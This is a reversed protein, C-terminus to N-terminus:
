TLGPKPKYVFAISTNCNRYLDSAVIPMVVSNTSLNNIQNLLIGPVFYFTASGFILHSCLGADRHWVWLAAITPKLVGAISCMRQVAYGRERQQFGCKGQLTFSSASGARSKSAATAAVRVDPLSSSNKWGSVSYSSFCNKEKWATLDTTLVNWKYFRILSRKKLNAHTDLLHLKYSSLDKMPITDWM